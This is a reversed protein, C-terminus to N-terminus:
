DDHKHHKKHHKHHGHGAQVFYVPQACAGYRACHKAWKKQHGPPAYIYVPQQQVVVPAQGQVVVVPPPPAIIVPQAVVVPPPPKDGIVIRGYVGRAIDGEVIVRTGANAAGAALNLGLVVAWLSTTKM